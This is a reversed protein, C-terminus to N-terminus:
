PETLELNYSKLFTDFCIYPGGPKWMIPVPPCIGNEPKLRFALPWNEMQDGGSKKSPLYNGYPRQFSLLPKLKDYLAKAQQGTMRQKPHASTFSFKGTIRNNM